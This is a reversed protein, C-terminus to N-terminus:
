LLKCQRFNRSSARLTMHKELYAFCFLHKMQHNKVNFSAGLDRLLICIRMVTTHSIGLYPLRTAYHLATNGDFDVSNPNGDLQKLFRLVKPVLSEWRKVLDKNENTEKDVTELIKGITHRHYTYLPSVDINELAFNLAESICSFASLSSLMNCFVTDIVAQFVEQQLIGHRVFLQIGKHITPRGLHSFHTNIYFSLVSLHCNDRIHLLAGKALLWRAIELSQTFAYFLPTRGYIDRVNVVSKGNGVLERVLSYNDVAHFLATKGENDTISVDADAMILDTVVSTRHEKVACFLATYGKKDRANVDAGAKVLCNIMALTGKLYHLATKGEKDQANVNAGVQVLASAALENNNIVAYLLATKGENDTENVGAGDFHLLKVMNPTIACFLATKGEMDEANVNVGVDILASFASEYNNIVAYHLATQGKNDTANVEAGADVLCKVMNRSPVYFLATRGESDTM